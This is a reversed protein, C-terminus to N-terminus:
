LVDLRDVRDGAVAASRVRVGEGIAQQAGAVLDKKSL